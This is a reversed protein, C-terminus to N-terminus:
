PTNNAVFGVFACSFLFLTEHKKKPKTAIIMLFGRWKPTTEYATEPWRSPQCRVGSVKVIDM